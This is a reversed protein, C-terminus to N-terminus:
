PCKKVGRSCAPRCHNLSSSLSLRPSFFPPPPFSIESLLHLESFFFILFIQHVSYLFSSFLSLHGPTIFFPVHFVLLTFLPLIM